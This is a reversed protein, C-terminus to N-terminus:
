ARRDSTSRLIWVQRVILLSIGAVSWWVQTHGLALAVLGIVVYLGSIALIWWAMLRRNRWTFSPRTEAGKVM